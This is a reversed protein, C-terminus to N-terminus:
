DTGLNVYASAYDPKLEIAKEWLQIAKTLNGQDKYVVGLNYYVAADPDLEISRLLFSIVKDYEEYSGHSFNLRCVNVGEAIIQELIEKSYTAPGITAIIKTKNFKMKKEEHKQKNIMMM